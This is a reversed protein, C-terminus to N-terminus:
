IKGMNRWHEALEAFGKIIPELAAGDNSLSYSVEPPITSKYERLVLGHLELERLKETLVKQSITPMHRKLEGFRLKRHKILIWIIYSSWKQAVIKFLKEVPCVTKM